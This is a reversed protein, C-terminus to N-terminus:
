TAAATTYAAGLHKAQVADVCVSERINTERIDTLVLHGFIFNV